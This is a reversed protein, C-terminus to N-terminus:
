KCTETEIFEKTKKLVANHFFRADFIEPYKQKTVANVGYEIESTTVLRFVNDQFSMLGSMRVFYRYKLSLKSGPAAADNYQAVQDDTLQSFKTNWERDLPVAIEVRNTPPDPSYGLDSLSKLLAVQLLSPKIADSNCASFISFASRPGSGVGLSSREAILSETEVTQRRTPHSVVESAQACWGFLVLLALALRWKLQAGNSTKPSVFPKSSIGSM